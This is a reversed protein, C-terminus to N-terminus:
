DRLRWVDWREDDPNWYLVYRNQCELAYQVPKDDTYVRIEPYYRGADSCPLVENDGPGIRFRKWKRGASRYHYSLTHNSNNIIQVSGSGSNWLGVSPVDAHGPVPLILVTACWAMFLIKVRAIM